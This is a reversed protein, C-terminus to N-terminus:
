TSIDDGEKECQVFLRRMHNETRGLAFAPILHVGRILQVLSSSPYGGPLSLAYSSTPPRTNCQIVSTLLSVFSFSVYMSPAPACHIVQHPMM